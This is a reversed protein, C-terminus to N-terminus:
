PVSRNSTALRLTFRRAARAILVIFGPTEELRTAGYQGGAAQRQAQDFDGEALRRRPGEGEAMDGVRVDGVDLARLENSVKITSQGAGHRLAIRQRRPGIENEVAPIDGLEALRFLDVV